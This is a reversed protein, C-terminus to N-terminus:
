RAATIIAAHRSGCQQKREAGRRQVRDPVQEEAARPVYLRRRRDRDDREDEHQCRESGEGPVDVRSRPFIDNGGARELEDVNRQEGGRIAVELQREDVRDRAAERRDGREQEGDREDSRPRGHALDGTHEDHRCAHQEDAARTPATAGCEPEDDGGHDAAVRQDVPVPDAM